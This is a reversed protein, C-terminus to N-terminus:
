AKVKPMSAPPQPGAFDKGDRGRKVALTWAGEVEGPRARTPTNCVWVSGGFTVADGRAYDTEPKHVGQYVLVPFALEFTQTLDGRAFSLRLTRGDEDLTLDMDEFGLGAPGPAGDAGAKGDVGDRGVVKGVTASSGDAFVLVLGGDRDILAETLTRGEMRGVRGALAATAAKAEDGTDTPGPPGAPGAPGVIPGVRHTSGDGFTLVLHDGDLAADTLAKGGLADIRSTLLDILAPDADAGAAGAPGAPGVVPGLTRTSGDALTLVLQGADLTADVLARADLTDLRGEL